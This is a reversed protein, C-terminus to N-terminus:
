IRRTTKLDIELCLDLHFQRTYKKLYNTYKTYKQVYYYKQLEVLTHECQQITIYRM